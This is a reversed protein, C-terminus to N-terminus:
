CSDNRKRQIRANSYSWCCRKRNCVFELSVFAHMFVVMGKDPQCKADSNGAKFQQLRALLAPKNGTRDLQRIILQERLEIVTMDEFPKVITKKKMVEKVAMEFSNSLDDSDSDQKLDAFHHIHCVFHDAYLCM